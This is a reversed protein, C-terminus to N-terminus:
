SPLGNGQDGQEARRVPHTTSRALLVQRLMEPPVQAALQARADAARRLNAAVAELAEIAATDAGSACGVLTAVDELSIGGPHGLRPTAQGAPVPIAARPAPHSATNPTPDPTLHPTPHDHM